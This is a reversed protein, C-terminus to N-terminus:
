IPKVIKQLNHCFPVVDHASFYIDVTKNCDYESQKLFKINKAILVFDIILQTKGL